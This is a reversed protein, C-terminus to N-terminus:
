RGDFIATIRALREAYEAEQGHGTPRYYTTGASEDPAYQQPV